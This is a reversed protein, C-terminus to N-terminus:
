SSIFWLIGLIILLLAAAALGSTRSSTERGAEGAPTRPPEVPKVHQLAPADGTTGVIGSYQSWVWAAPPERGAPYYQSWVWALPSAGETFESM